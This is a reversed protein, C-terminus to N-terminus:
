TLTQLRDLLLAQQPRPDIWWDTSWIRHITWGLSELVQQRLIDRERAVRSSHYTAGDCEVGLIFRGPYRPDVIGLDGRYGAVGVQPVVEYGKSNIFKNKM